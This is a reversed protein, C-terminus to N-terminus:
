SRLQEMGIKEPPIRAVGICNAAGFDNRVNRYFLM